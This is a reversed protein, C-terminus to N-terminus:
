IITLEPLPLIFKGGRKLFESEKKLIFNKFHWPLVLYYDPSMKKSEEESVIPILTGPTEKGFKDPNVEAICELLEKNISFYQLLTNGKTSAGYGHVRKGSKKL